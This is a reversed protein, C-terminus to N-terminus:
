ANVLSSAFDELAHGKSDALLQSADRVRIEYYRCNAQGELTRYALSFISFFFCVTVRSM